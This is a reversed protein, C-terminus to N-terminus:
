LCPWSGANQYGAIADDYSFNEEMIVVVHRYTAPPAPLLGCPDPVPTAAAAVAATATAAGPILGAAGALLLVGLWRARGLLGGM